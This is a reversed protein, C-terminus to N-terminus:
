LKSPGIVLIHIVDGATLDYATGSGDALTRAGYQAAREALERLSVQARDIDAATLPPAIDCAVVLTGIGIQQCLQLRQDFLQWAEQRKDGQSTLLGGQFSAVHAKVNHTELLGLFVDTSNHQLYDELKTLWIEISECHGAAYDQIDKELPSNLSCIQSITPLM